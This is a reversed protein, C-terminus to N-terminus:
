LFGQNHIYLRHKQLSLCSSELENQLLSSPKSDAKLSMCHPIIIQHQNHFGEVSSFGNKINIMLLKAM